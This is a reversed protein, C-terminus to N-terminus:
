CVKKVLCVDNIANIETAAAMTEVKKQEKGEKTQLFGLLSITTNREALSLQVDAGISYAVSSNAWSVWDAM